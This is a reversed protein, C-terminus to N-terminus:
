KQYFAAAFEQAFDTIRIKGMVTSKNLDYDRSLAGSHIAGNLEVLLAALAPPVGHTEMGHQAEANSVTMWKLEPKGIAEGLIRAVEGCSREDSVVYRVRSGVLAVIEEAIATAIDRPSVMVLRDEGGYNSAIFGAHRIMDVFVYLNYYFYGPRMHTVNVNTLTNLMEEIHHSGLIVGTGKDLDAGYSSLHVVRKVGSQQIAKHYAEGTERYYAIVDPAGYNPPVMCYVADAGRFTAALFEMDQIAGVAAAAGLAEIEQQKDTKSTIVTVTHGGEVLTKALPKSINGLSGTVVIKMTAIIKNRM